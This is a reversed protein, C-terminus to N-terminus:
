EVITFTITKSYPIDNKEVELTLFHKGIKNYAPNRADLTISHGNVSIATGTIHWDIRNYQDPFEVTLITTVPSGTGTGSITPGTIEPAADIIDAFTIIFNESIKQETEDPKPCAIFLLCLVVSLIILFIQHKKM